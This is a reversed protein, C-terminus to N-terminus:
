KKKDESRSMAYGNEEAWVAAELPDVKEWEEFAKAIYATPDVRRGMIDTLEMAVAPNLSCINRFITRAFVEGNSRGSNMLWEVPKQPGEMTAWKKLVPSIAGSNLDDPQDLVWALAAEPSKEAEVLAIGNIAYRQHGKPLTSSEVWNRADDLDVRAWSSVVSAYLMTKASDSTLESIKRTAPSYVDPDSVEDFYSKLIASQNGESLYSSVRFAEEFDLNVLSRGIAALVARNGVVRSPGDALWQEFSGLDNRIWEDFLSDLEKERDDPMLDHALDFRLVPDVQGWNSQQPSIQVFRDREEESERYSEKAYSGGSDLVEKFEPEVKPYVGMSIRELISGSYLYGFVFAIVSLFFYAFQLKRFRVMECIGLAGLWRNM